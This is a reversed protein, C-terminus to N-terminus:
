KGKREKVYKAIKIVRDDSDLTYIYVVKRKQYIYYKYADEGILALKPKKASIERWELKLLEKPDDITAILRFLNM